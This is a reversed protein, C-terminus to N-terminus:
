KLSFKASVGKASSTGVFVEFAGPEAKHSMDRTYFALDNSSISFTVKRSEGAKIAVKQFGKLEKVPRTVSGVLDRIYLQVIEKGDHKGRNKINVSLSLTENQTMEKKNMSIESYSFDSYGLGHGFPYLPENAVDIYKSTYKNKADFPRGTNKMNYYIPIQGANRPFTMTLKGSPNHDGFLVEAIAKGAMTGLHWTNLIAPINQDSWELTIPRGAMVLLVVPKGLAHIQRLLELQNAPLGIESRSAAEGSQQYNEGLAMVVVDSKRAAQLAKAFGSSGSGQFSVGRAYNISVDPAVEQIGKLLTIAKSEDGAVHWTGLMDKQNDALPGILAISKTSKSLPLVPGGKINENKLLVISEKALELAHDMLEKSFLTEKERDANLYRYPDEFLGLRYKMELVRRVYADLRSEEIQGEKILEPIYKSYVGGQMDMEVGANFALAAAEKNNAVVGHPVMENIATYDTVVFGDFGWEDRLIETMLYHNGSAPLGDLENFSTMVTTAGADLAAKFPPLYTERLVRDSLDVTHYDRGAQAAGYAAFHKVCAMVTAHHSLDTGQYGRVKAAAMLSGLYVDEGTGEAVRGWRPDRAIDVMPNYTWNIGASSAEKASLRATKEILALDWSAAEALPIPFTTKYGHIVDLGFLLPIGLRTEEVAIKQLKIAYDVTHANFLNGARGAKLEEVYDDRLQPGTVTWGSTYLTLQGAKEEITM